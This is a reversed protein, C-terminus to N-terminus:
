REDDRRGIQGVHVEDLTVREGARPAGTTRGRRCAASPCPLARRGGRGGGRRRGGTPFAAAPQGGLSQRQQLRRVRPDARDIQVLALNEPVDRVALRWVVDLIM